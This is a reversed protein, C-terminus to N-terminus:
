KLKNSYGGNHLAKTSLSKQFENMLLISLKVICIKKQKVTDSVEDIILTEHIKCKAQKVLPFKSSLSFYQFFFVVGLYLIQCGMVQFITETALTESLLHLLKQHVSTVHVRSETKGEQCMALLCERLGLIVGTRHLSICIFNTFALIYVDCIFYTCTFTRTNRSKM